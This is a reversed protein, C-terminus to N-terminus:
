VFLFPAADLSHIEKKDEVVRLCLVKLTAAVAAATNYFLLVKITKRSNQKTKGKGNRKIKVM